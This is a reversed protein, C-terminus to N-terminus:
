FMECPLFRSYDANVCPVRFEHPMFRPLCAETVLTILKLKLAALTGSLFEVHSLKPDVASAAISIQNDV